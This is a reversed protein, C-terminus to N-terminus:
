CYIGGKHYLSVHVKLAGQDKFNRLCLFHAFIMITSICFHMNFNLIKDIHYVCDFATRLLNICENLYFEFSHMFKSSHLM